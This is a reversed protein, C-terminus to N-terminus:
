KGNKHSPEHHGIPKSLDFELSSDYPGVGNESRLKGTHHCLIKECVDHLPETKTSVILCM